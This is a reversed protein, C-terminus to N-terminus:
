QCTPWKPYVHNEAVAVHDHTHIYVNTTEFSRCQRFVYSQLELHGCRKMKMTEM